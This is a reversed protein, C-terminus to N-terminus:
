ERGPGRGRVAAPPDVPPYATNNSNMMMDADEHSCRLNHMGGNKYSIGNEAGDYDGISIIIAYSGDTEFVRKDIPKPTHLSNKFTVAKTQNFLRHQFILAVSALRQKADGKLCKKLLDVM